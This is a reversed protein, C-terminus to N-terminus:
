IDAHGVTRGSLSLGLYRLGGHATDAARWVVRSGLNSAERIQPLVKNVQEMLNSLAHVKLREHDLGDIM